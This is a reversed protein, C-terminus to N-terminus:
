GNEYENRTVEKQSEIAIVVTNSDYAVSSESGGPFKMFYGDKPHSRVFCEIDDNWLFIEEWKFRDYYKQNDRM